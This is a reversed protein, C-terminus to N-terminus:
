TVSARDSLPHCARSAISSLKMGISQSPRTASAAKPLSMASESYQIRGKEMRVATSDSIEQKTPRSPQKNHASTCKGRSFVRTKIQQPILIRPHGHHPRHGRQRVTQVDEPALTTATVNDGQRPPSCPTGKKATQATEELRRQPPAPTGGAQHSQRGSELADGRTCWTQWQGTLSCM